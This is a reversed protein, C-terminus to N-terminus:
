RRWLNCRWSAEKERKKAAERRWKDEKRMADLDLALAGDAPVIWVEALANDGDIALGEDEGDPYAIQKAFHTRAEHPPGDFDDFYFLMGCGITYDCGEGEQRQAILYRM